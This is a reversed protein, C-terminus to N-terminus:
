RSPMRPKVGKVHRHRQMPRQGSGPTESLEQTVGQRGPLRRSRVGMMGLFNTGVIPMSFAHYTQSADVFASWLMELYVTILLITIIFKQLRSADVSQRNTVDEGLYLDAFSADMPSTNIDVKGSRLDTPVAAAAPAPAGPAAAPAVANPTPSQDAKKGEVVANAVVASGTTIGILGFLNTEVAPLDGFAIDWVAGTFYASFLVLFWAMWQLRGLSIRNREDILVGIWRDNALHGAIVSVILLSALVAGWQWHLITRTGSPINSEAAIWASCAGLLVVGLLTVGGWGLRKVRSM